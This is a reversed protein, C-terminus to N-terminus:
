LAAVAAEVTPYQVLVTDVRTAKFLAAIRNSAGVIAYKLNKQESTVHLRIVCGLTASDMYPVESVDLITSQLSVQRLADQFKFLDNLTCPGVIRLIRLGERPSPSEVIELTEAV